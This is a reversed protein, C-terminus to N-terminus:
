PRSMSASPRTRRSLDVLGISRIKPNTDFLNLVRNQKAGVLEEGDLLLVPRNGENLFKLEAVSGADSVETVRATEAALAEDLIVYQEDWVTGAVPTPRFLLPIMTLNKYTTPSGLHATNITDHIFKLEPEGRRMTAGENM